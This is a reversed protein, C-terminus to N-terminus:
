VETKGEQALPKGKRAPGSLYDWRRAANKYRIARWGMSRAAGDHEKAEDSRELHDV